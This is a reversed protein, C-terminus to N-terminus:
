SMQGALTNRLLAVVADSRGEAILSMPTHADLDPHPANLWLLVQDHTGLVRKLTSYCFAIKRLEDQLSWGAPSKQLLAPSVGLARSMRRLPFDLVGAIRRADLQHTKPDHLAPDVHEM